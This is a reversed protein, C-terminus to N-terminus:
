LRGHGTMSRLTRAPAAEPFDMPIPDKGVDIAGGLEIQVVGLM